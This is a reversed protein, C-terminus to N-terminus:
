DQPGGSVLPQKTRGVALVKPSALKDLKKAQLAAWHEDREDLKKAQVTAWELLGQMMAWGKLDELLKADLLNTPPAKLGITAHDIRNLERIYFYLETSLASEDAVDALEPLAWGLAKTVGILDHHDVLETDAAEKVTQGAENKSKRLSEISPLPVDADDRWNPATNRAVEIAEPLTKVGTLNVGPIRQGKMIWSFREARMEQLHAETINCDPWGLRICLAKAGEDYEELLMHLAVGRARAKAAELQPRGLPNTPREGAPCAAIATDTAQNLGAMKIRSIPPLRCINAEVVTNLGLYAALLFEPGLALEALGNTVAFPMPHRAVSSWLFRSSNTPVSAPLRQEFMGIDVPRDGDGDCWAGPMRDYACTPCGCCNPGVPQLAASSATVDLMSREVDNITSGSVTLSELAFNTGCGEVGLQCTNRAMTQMTRGGHNTLHWHVHLTADPDAPGPPTKPLAGASVDDYRGSRRCLGYNSLAAEITRREDDNRASTNLAGLSLTDLQRQLSDVQSLVNELAPSRQQQWQFQQREQLQRRRKQQGPDGICVLKYLSSSRGAPNKNFLARKSERSYSCGGPVVGDPGEDVVKLGRVPLGPAAKQVADLCEAEAANREGDPCGNYQGLRETKRNDLTWGSSPSSSNLSDRMLSDLPIEGTSAAALAYLQLQLLRTYALPAHDFYSPHAPDIAQVCLEIRILWSGLDSMEVLRRSFGHQLAVCPPSDSLLATPLLADAPGAASALAPLLLARLLDLMQQNAGRSPGQACIPACVQGWNPMHRRTNQTAANKGTPIVCDELSSGESSNIEPDNQGTRNVM